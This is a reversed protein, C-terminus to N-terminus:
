AVEKPKRTVARVAELKLSVKRPQWGDEPTWRQGIMPERSKKEHEKWFDGMLNKWLARDEDRDMESYNSYGEFYHKNEVEDIREYAARIEAVNPLYTCERLCEAFAKHLLKPQLQSLGLRWALITEETVEKGYNGTYITAWNAILELFERSPESSASASNKRNALSQDDSM